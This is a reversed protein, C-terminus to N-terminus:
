QVSCDKTMQLSCFPEELTAPNVGLPGQSHKGLFLSFQGRISRLLALFFDKKLVEVM